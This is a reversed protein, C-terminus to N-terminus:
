VEVPEARSLTGAQNRKQTQGQGNAFAYVTLQGVTEAGPPGAPNEISGGAQGVMGAVIDQTVLNQHNDGAYARNQQLEGIM